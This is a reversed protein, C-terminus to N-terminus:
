RARRPESLLETYVIETPLVEPRPLGALSTVEVVDAENEAEFVSWAKGQDLNYLTEKVDIGLKDAADAVRVLTQRFAAENTGLPIAHIALFRQM